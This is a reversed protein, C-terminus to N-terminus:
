AAFAPNEHIFDSIQGPTCIWVSDDNGCIHQLARRVARIRFPQGSIFSHLVVSMVLPQHMSNLLLEDFQDIIMHSFQQADAQRGIITTSDNLELAYPISLLLGASTSLWVPQDDMGLDLIHTYGARKVSAASTPSHALWPSSWGKPGRGEHQAIERTVNAIYDAEEQESMGALSDSNSRGHAVVEFGHERAQDTVAAAYRYVDSNLLLSVPLRFSRFLDFIRFVGVRNGYDRWSTNVYDPCSAGQLLDETLGEGFDYDEVGLVFYLALRKGGPWLFDSRDNIPSYRYLEQKKPM